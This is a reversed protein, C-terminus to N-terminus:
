TKKTEGHASDFYICHGDPDLLTASAGGSTSVRLDGSFAYGEGVLRAYIGPVDGGRFNLTFPRGDMFQPEFLGLRSEGQVMVAWGDSDAGEVLRFGVGEYFPRSRAVSEVRLCVDLWGLYM